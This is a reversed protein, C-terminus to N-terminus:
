KASRTEEDHGEKFQSGINSDLVRLGKAELEGLHAYTKQPMSGGTCLPNQRGRCKRLESSFDESLRFRIDGDM